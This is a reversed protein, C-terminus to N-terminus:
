HHWRELPLEQLQEEQFVMIFLVQLLLICLLTLRHALKAAQLLLSFLWIVPNSLSQFLGHMSCRLRRRLTIGWSPLVKRISYRQKLSPRVIATYAPLIQDTHVQFIASAALDSLDASLRTMDSKTIRVKSLMYSPQDPGYQGTSSEPQCYHIRLSLTRSFLLLLVSTEMPEPLM